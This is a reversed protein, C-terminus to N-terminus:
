TGPTRHLPADILLHEGARAVPSVFRPAMQKRARERAIDLFIVIHGYRHGADMLARMADRENDAVKLRVLDATMRDVTAREDRTMKM